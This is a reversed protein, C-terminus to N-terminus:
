QKNPKDNVDKRKVIIKAPDKYMVAYLTPAAGGVGFVMGSQHARKNDGGVYGLTIVGPSTHKDYADMM